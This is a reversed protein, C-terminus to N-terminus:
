ASDAAHCVDAGRGKASVREACSRHRACTRRNSGHAFGRRCSPVFHGSCVARDLRTRSGIRRAQRSRAGCVAHHRSRRISRALRALHVSRAEVRSGIQSHRLPLRDLGPVPRLFASALDNDGRDFCASRVRRDHRPEPHRCAAGLGNWGISSLPVPSATEVSATRTDGRRCFAPIDPEPPVLFRHCSPCSNTM